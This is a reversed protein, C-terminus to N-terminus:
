GSSVAIALIKQVLEIGVASTMTRHKKNGLLVQTWDVLGGDAFDIQAAGVQIFIKFQVTQYYKNELDNVLAYNYANWVHQKEHLLAAFQENDSKLYFKILMREKQVFQGLLALYTSIHLNLQRLEFKFDGQDFGGSVLTLLSFHASYAPNDFLQGRIHRHVTSYQVIRDKRREGQFDKAIQLALVNTADSVVETGRISSLVKNQNVAAIVSCTGLPAVPSLAVPTFGLDRVQKLWQLELERTKITDIGAPQVFRNGAFEKMLDQPAITAARRRFIELMLSNFETGSLGTAIQDIFEDKSLKSIIKELIRDM